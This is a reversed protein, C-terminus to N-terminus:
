IEQSTWNYYGLYYSDTKMWSSYDSGSPYHLVGNEKIANFTMSKIGPAVVANCTISILNSCQQFAYEGISTVSNPIVISTLGTCGSFVAQYISTVSDPINISTLGSCDQFAHDGITTVSGPINISTLGRCDSFAYNYISTVSNPIM